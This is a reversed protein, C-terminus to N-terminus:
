RVGAAHPSRDHRGKLVLTQNSRKRDLITQYIALYESAMRRLSFSGSVRAAAKQGTESAFVPDQLYQLMANQLDTVNQPEVLLGHQGSTIVSPIAGVRSAVVSKGAAMAELLALPMGESLSPLVFIDLSAYVSSMERQVGAFFVREKINLKEALSELASRETGEGVLVFTTDPFQSLVGRAAQLFYSLGKEPALRGVFGVRAGSSYTCSKRQGIAEAFRTVDIGNNVLSINGVSVSAERLKKALSESVVTVHDVRRLVIRDLWYFLRLKISRGPWGHCTAVIPISTKRAAWYGYIDAKYGHSHILEIGHERIYAQIRKLAKLDAQGSCPIGLVLLGRKQASDLIETNLNQKNRFVGIIPTCGLKAVSTALELLMNEAGYQGASSILHLIKM